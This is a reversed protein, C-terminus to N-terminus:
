INLGSFYLNSAPFFNYLYKIALKTFLSPREGAWLDEQIGLESWFTWIGVAHKLSYSVFECYTYLFCRKTCRTLRVISYTRCYLDLSRKAALINYICGNMRGYTTGVYVVWGMWSVIRVIVSPCLVHYRCKSYTDLCLKSLTNRIDRERVAHLLYVHWM